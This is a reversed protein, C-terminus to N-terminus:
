QADFGRQADDGVTPYFGTPDVDRYLKEQKEKTSDYALTLLTDGAVTGKMFVAARGGLEADHGDLSGSVTRLQDEFADFSRNPNSVNGRIKNLSVSGEIVGAAVLPRLNPAFRLNASANVPGSSAEVATEGAEAPARLAFQGAGGEVFVQVGPERPDLDAQLWQGLKADLTLPTRQLVPVGQADELHVLVTAAAQGDAAVSSQPLEVRLRALAGPVVVDVRSSGRANGFSDNQRLELSNKGARLAVGVFEWSEMQREAVKNRQGIHSDQVAEGNVLLAFRSGLAGKVRVTAQSQALVAGDQLDVFALTNDLQALDTKAPTTVVATKVVAATPAANDFAKSDAQAAARRAQIASRLAPNCANLAFDAHALEGDKADVFRSGADGANRQSLVALSAGAPLTSPDVKAVHTRPRTELFSYKGDIDTRSFSGDELYIRVGPVGPEDGDQIGNGDCDAFVKGLIVGKESFVGAEVKVKAAAVVSTFAPAASRAVARNIGDGQLAGAGIRVRYRLELTSAAPVSGINFQLGSANTAVPDAAAAGALRVTGAVLRFGAPLTDDIQVGNLAVDATNHIRITYDVFDAIEAVARSANKELYLTGPIADLPVDITVVGSTASVTFNGGYSGYLNIERTNPLLGAAIKSPFGYNNPATVDLRYLSPAVLPFHYHGDADTVVTSPMPTAGDTDFVIAAQGPRGGNGDGTVDILTVTAGALPANTKSDFVIGVPDVLITTSIPGSGCGNIAATLTDNPLVELMKDNSTPASAASSAASGSVTGRRVGDGDADVPEATQAAATAAAQVMRRDAASASIRFTGTDPGTEQAMYLQSDGTMKSTITVGITEARGPDADCEASEIQVYLEGNTRTARAVSSFSASTYYTITDAQVARVTNSQVTVDGAAGTFSTSARNVIAAGAGVSLLAFVGLCLQIVIRTFSSM